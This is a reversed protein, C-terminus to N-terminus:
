ISFVKAEVLEIRNKLKKEIREVSAKPAPARCLACQPDGSKRTWEEHCHWHFKHMCPLLAIIQDEGLPEFCISCDSSSSEENKLFLYTTLVRKRELELVSIESRTADM